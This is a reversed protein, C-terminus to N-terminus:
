GGKRRNENKGRGIEEGNVEIRKKEKGDRGM